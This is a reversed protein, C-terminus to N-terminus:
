CPGKSELAKRVKQKLVTPSFPKSLIEDGKCKSVTAEMLSGGRGTLFMVYVRATDKADKLNECVKYGSLGPMMVDLIVLDPRLTRAMDLAKIGDEVDHIEYGEGELSLRILDRVMPDDEAILIRKPSSMPVQANM